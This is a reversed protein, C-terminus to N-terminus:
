RSVDMRIALTGDAVTARNGAADVVELDWYYTTPQTLASTDAEALRVTIEGAAADTVTIGQGITRTFVPAPDDLRARASFTITAGILSQPDGDPETIAFEWATTDGRVSRLKM